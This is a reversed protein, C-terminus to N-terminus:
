EEQFRFLAGAPHQLGIFQDGQGITQEFFDFLDMKDDGIVEQSM